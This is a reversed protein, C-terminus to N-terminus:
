SSAPCCVMNTGESHAIAKTEFKLEGGAVSMRKEIAAAVDERSTPVADGEPTWCPDFLKLDPAAITSLKSAVEGSVWSSYYSRAAALMQQEAVPTDTDNFAGRFFASAGPHVELNCNAKFRAAIEEQIWCMDSCTQQPLVTQCNALAIDFM